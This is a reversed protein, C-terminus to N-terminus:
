LTSQRSKIWAPAQLPHPSTHIPNVWFCQHLTSFFFLLVTPEPQVLSQLHLYLFDRIFERSFAAKRGSDTQLFRTRPSQNHTIDPSLISVGCLHHSAACGTMTLPVQLADGVLLCWSATSYRWKDSFEIREIAILDATKLSFMSKDSHFEYSKLSHHHFCFPDSHSPCVSIRRTSIFWVALRDITTVIWV